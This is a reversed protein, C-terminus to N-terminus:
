DLAQACGDMWGDMWGNAERKGVRGSIRRPQTCVIRCEKGGNRGADELIYQPVQTTKGCGTDGAVLVVQHQAITSLLEQALSAIPLSLRRQNLLKLSSDLSLRSRRASELSAMSHRNIQASLLTRVCVSIYIYECVFLVVLCQASGHFRSSKRMLSVPSTIESVEPASPHHHSALGANHRDRSQNDDDDVDVDDDDNDDEDEANEGLREAENGEPPFSQFFHDLRHQARGSLCLPVQPLGDDDTNGSRGSKFVTVRRSQGSLLLPHLLDLSPLTTLTTSIMIAMMMGQEGKGYSKSEFGYKRCEHHVVARAHNSLNDEFTFELADSDRFEELLKVIDIRTSEAKSPQELSRDRDDRDTELCPSSLFFSFFSLFFSFFLVGVGIRKTGEVPRAGPKIHSAM